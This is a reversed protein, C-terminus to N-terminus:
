TESVVMCQLIGYMVKSVEIQHLKVRELKVAPVLYSLASVKYINCGSPLMYHHPYHIDRVALGGGTRVLDLTVIGPVPM